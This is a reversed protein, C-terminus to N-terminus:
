RSRGSSPSVNSGTETPVLGPAKPLVWHQGLELDFDPPDFRFLGWGPNPTFEGFWVKGSSEYLDVRIFDIGGSLTEADEILEAQLEPPRVDPSTGRSDTLELRNWNRDFYARRRGTEPGERVLILEVNGGFVFLKVDPPPDPGEGIFRELLFCRKSRTEVWPKRPGTINQALPPEDLWSLVRDRISSIDEDSLSGEGVLIRHTSNNPKLVWREPLDLGSLKEPDTGVWLIEPMRMGPVREEAIERGGLKDDMRALIPRRDNLERWIVKENFRRPRRTNPWRSQSKLYRLKWALGDPLRRGVARAAARPKM